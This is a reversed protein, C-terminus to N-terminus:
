IEGGQCPVTGPGSSVYGACTSFGRLGLSAPLSGPPFVAERILNVVEFLANRHSSPGVWGLFARRTNRKEKPGQM